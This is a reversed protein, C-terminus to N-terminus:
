GLTFCGMRKMLESFNWHAPFMLWIFFSSETRSWQYIRRTLLFKELNIAGDKSVWGPLKSLRPSHVLPLPLFNLVSTTDLGCDLMITTSKFKLVNCPLTPHGSLCYQVTQVIAEISIPQSDRGSTPKSEKEADVLASRIGLKGLEQVLDGSQHMQLLIDCGGVFESNIYVM